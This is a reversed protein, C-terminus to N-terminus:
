EEIIAFRKHDLEAWPIENLAVDLIEIVDRTRKAVSRSVKRNDDLSRAIRGDRPFKSPASKMSFRRGMRTVPDCRDPEVQTPRM